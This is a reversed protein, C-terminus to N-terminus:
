PAFSLSRPLLGKFDFGETVPRVEPAEYEPRAISSMESARFMWAPVIAGAGSDLFGMRDAALSRATDGVDPLVNLTVVVAGTRPAITSSKM